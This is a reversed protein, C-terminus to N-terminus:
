SKPIALCSLTADLVGGTQGNTTKLLQGSTIAGGSDAGGVWGSTMLNTAEAAESAVMTFPMQTQETADSPPLPVRKVAYFPLETSPSADASPASTAFSERNMDAATAYGQKATIRCSVTSTAANATPNVSRAFTLALLRDANAGSPVTFQGSVTSQQATPDLRPTVLIAGSIPTVTTGGDLYALQVVGYEFNTYSAALETLGKQLATAATIVFSSFQSADWNTKDSQVRLNHIANGFVKNDKHQNQWSKSVASTKAKKKAAMAPSTGAMAGVVVLAMVALLRVKMFYSGRM